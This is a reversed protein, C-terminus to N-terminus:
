QINRANTDDNLDMSYLVKVRSMLSAHSVIYSAMWMSISLLM